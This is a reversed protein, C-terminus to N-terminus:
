LSSIIKPNDKHNAEVIVAIMEEFHQLNLPGFWLQKEM